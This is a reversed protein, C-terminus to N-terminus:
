HPREAYFDARRAFAESGGEMIQEIARVTSPDELTGAHRVFGRKGDSGLVAVQEAEGLVPINANHTSVILQAGLPRALMSRVLTDVIFATDLNDEPQDLVVPREDHQLVVPLVVTCRQGTSLASTEKYLSGDLLELSVSDDIPATLVEGVGQQRLQTLVRQARDISIEGLRAITKFDFDEVARALELPAIREALLPALNAYHLGSGKLADAIGSAYENFLAGRRLAVRVRPNLATNLKAVVDRRSEFRKGRLADLDALAADRAQRAGKRQQRREVLLHQLQVLEAERERLETLRRAAAGAGAQLEEAQRRLSRANDDLSTLRPRQSALTTALWGDAEDLERIADNLLREAHNAFRRVPELGDSPPDEAPWEEFHLSFRAARQVLGRWNSVAEAARELVGTRAAEAALRESTRELQQLLGSARVASLETEAAQTEAERRAVQAAELGAVHEALRAIEADLDNLERSLSKVNSNAALAKRNSSPDAVRFDELLRLRGREDTGVVEVEGQSLVIPRGGPLEVPEDRASRRVIHREGDVSVTLTAKGDRLISLAHERARTGFREALAPADTCYRILEIVSTKGTGRAGILVNLGPNLRLDLGDLFGGEVQLRELVLNAAPTAV